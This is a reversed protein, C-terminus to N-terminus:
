NCMITALVDILYVFNLKDIWFVLVCLDAVIEGRKKNKNDMRERFIKTYIEKKKLEFNDEGQIRELEVIGNRKIYQMDAMHQRRLRTNM